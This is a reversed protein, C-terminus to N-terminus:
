VVKVGSNALRNVCCWMRYLAGKICMHGYMHTHTHQKLKIDSIHHM